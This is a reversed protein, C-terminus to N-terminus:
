GLPGQLVAHVTLGSPGPALDVTYAGSRLLVSRRSTVGAATRVTLSGTLSVSGPGVLHLAAPARHVTAGGSTVMVSRATATFSASDQPQALGEQGVAVPAAAQYSGPLLLREAGDLAWTSGGADVSVRTRGPRLAGSGIIGLPEGANWVITSPRGGVSVNYITAGGQGRVPVTVLFPATLDPGTADTAVAATVTGDVVAQGPPVVPSGGAATGAPSSRGPPAGPPPAGTRHSDGATVVGAVGGAALAAIAIWTGRVARARRARTAPRRSM